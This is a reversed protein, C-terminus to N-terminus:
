CSSSIRLDIYSFRCTELIYWDQWVASESCPLTEGVDLRASALM